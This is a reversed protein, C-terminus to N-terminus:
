PSSDDGPAPGPRGAGVLVEAFRLIQEKDDDSLPATARVPLESLDIEVEEGLLWGVPRRYLRALRRLELASVHRKGTELASVSARPIDLARAVDEQLLGIYERAERLRAAFQQLESEDSMVVVGPMEDAQERYDAM